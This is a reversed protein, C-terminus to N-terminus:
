VATVHINAKFSRQSFVEEDVEVLHKKIGVEVIREDQCICSNGASDVPIFISIAKSLADACFRKEFKSKIIKHKEYSICVCVSGIMETFYTSVYCKGRLM